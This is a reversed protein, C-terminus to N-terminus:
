ASRKESKSKGFVEEISELLAQEIQEPHLLGFGQQNTILELMPDVLRVDSKLSFPLQKRELMLYSFSFSQLFDAISFCRQAKNKKAFLLRLGGRVSRLSTDVKHKEFLPCLLHMVERSLAEFAEESSPLTHSANIVKILRWGLSQDDQQKETM